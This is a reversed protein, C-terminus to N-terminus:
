CGIKAKKVEMALLPFHSGMARKDPRVRIGRQASQDDAFDYLFGHSSRVRSAEGHAERPTGHSANAGDGM